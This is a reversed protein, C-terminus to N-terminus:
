RLMPRYAQPASPSETSSTDGRNPCLQASAVGAARPSQLTVFARGLRRNADLGNFGLKRLDVGRDAVPSTRWKRITSAVSIMYPVMDDRPRRNERRGIASPGPRLVIRNSPKHLPPLNFVEERTQVLDAPREPGASLLRRVQRLAAVRRLRRASRGPRRAITDSLGNPGPPFANANSISRYGSLGSTRQAM